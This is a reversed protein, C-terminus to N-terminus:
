KTLDRGDTTEVERAEAAEETMAEYQVLGAEFAMAYFRSTKDALLVEPADFEAVRGRELVLM